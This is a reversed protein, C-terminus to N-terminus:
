MGKYLTNREGRWGIYFRVIWGREREQTRVDESASM